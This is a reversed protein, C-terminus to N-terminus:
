DAILAKVCEVCIHKDGLVRVWGKATVISETRLEKLFTKPDLEREVGCADCIQKIHLSM